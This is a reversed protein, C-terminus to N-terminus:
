HTYMRSYKLIKRNEGAYHNYCDQLTISYVRGTTQKTTKIKAYFLFYSGAFICTNGVIKCRTLM